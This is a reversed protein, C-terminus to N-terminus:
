VEFARMGARTVLRVVRKQVDCCGRQLCEGQPKRQSRHFATSPKSPRGAHSGPGSCANFQEPAHDRSFESLQRMSGPTNNPDLQDLQDLQDLKELLAGASGLRALEHLQPLALTWRTNEDRALSIVHNSAKFGHAVFRLCVEDHGAKSAVHLPTGEQM